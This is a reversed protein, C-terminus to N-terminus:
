LNKSNIRQKQVLEYQDCKFISEVYIENTHVVIINLYMIYYKLIIVYNKISKQETRWSKSEIAYIMTLLRDMWKISKQNLYKKWM